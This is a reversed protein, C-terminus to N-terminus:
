KFVKTRMQGPIPIPFDAGTINLAAPKSPSLDHLEALLAQWMRTTQWKQYHFLVIGSILAVLLGAIVELGVRMVADRRKARNSHKTNNSRSGTSQMDEMEYELEDDM